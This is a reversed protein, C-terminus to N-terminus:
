NAISVAVTDTNVTAMETTKLSIDTVAETAQESIESTEESSKNDVESLTEKPNAPSTDEVAVSDNESRLSQRTEEAAIAEEESVDEAGGTRRKTSGSIETSTPTETKDDSESSSATEGLRENEPVPLIEESPKETSTSTVVEKTPGEEQETATTGVDDTNSNRESSTSSLADQKNVNMMVVEKYNVSESTPEDDESMSSVTTRYIISIKVREEAHPEETSLTTSAEATTPIVV